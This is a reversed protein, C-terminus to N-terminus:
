LHQRKGPHEASGSDPRRHGCTSSDSLHCSREALTGPSVRAERRTDRREEWRNRSVLLGACCYCHHLLHSGDPHYARNGRLSGQRSCPRGVRIVSIVSLPATHCAPLCPM